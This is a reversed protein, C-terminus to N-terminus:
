KLKGLDTFRLVDVYLQQFAEELEKVLRLKNVNEEEQNKSEKIRKLHLEWYQPIITRNQDTMNTDGEIRSNRAPKERITLM